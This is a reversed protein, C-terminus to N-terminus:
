RTATLPQGPGTVGPRGPRARPWQHPWNSRSAPGDTDTESGALSGPVTLSLRGSEHSGAARGPGPPSPVQSLSESEHSSEFFKFKVQWDRHSTLSESQWGRHTRASSPSADDSIM